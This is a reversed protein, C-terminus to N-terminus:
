KAGGKVKELSLVNVLGGADKGDVIYKDMGPLIKEMTELYMRTKTVDKAQRYENLMQTFRSADGEAEKIRKQKYAEAEQFAQAAEGRAKPIIENRYGLAVNVLKEKEEKASQVDKFAADVQEPPTVDQLKVEAIHVGAQYSDLVKQLLLKTEAEIMAKGTTLTQDIEQSGVVQRIAAESAHAVAREPDVIRFLFRGADKIKYQVVMDVSVINEDGTLMLAESPVKRYQASNSTGGARVTRFGLELRRVEEVNVLDVTQIPWPFKFRLGPQTISTLEGFTKVVGNQEPDVVYFPGAFIVWVLVLLILPYIFAKMGLDPIQVESDGIIIRKAAM